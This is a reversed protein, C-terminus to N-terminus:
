KEIVFGYVVADAAEPHSRLYEMIERRRDVWSGKIAFFVLYHLADSFSEDRQKQVPNLELVVHM